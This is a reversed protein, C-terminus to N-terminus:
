WVWSSIPLSMTRRRKMMQCIITFITRSHIASTMESPATRHRYDERLQPNNDRWYKYNHSWATHIAGRMATMVKDDDALLEIVTHAQFWEHLAGLAGAVTHVLNDYGYAGKKLPHYNWGRHECDGRHLITVWDDFTLHQIGKLPSCNSVPPCSDYVYQGDATATPDSSRFAIKQAETYPYQNRKM